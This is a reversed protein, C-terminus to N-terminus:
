WTKCKSQQVKQFFNALTQDAKLFLSSSKFTPFTRRTIGLEQKEFDCNTKYLVNFFCSSFLNRFYGKHPCKALSFGPLFLANINLSYKVLFSPLSNKM